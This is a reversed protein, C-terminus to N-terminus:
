YRVELSGRGRYALDTASDDDEIDLQLKLALKRTINWKGRLFYTYVSPSEEIVTGNESFVTQGGNVTYSIDSFTDYTYKAYAAGGSIEWIRRYRYRVDWSVGFFSDEDEVNWYQLGVSSSCSRVPQYIFTVDGNQYDRNNSDNAGSDAFRLSVGPSVYFPPAVQVTLRAYTYAYPQQEGLVNYLPSYARTNADFAGWYSGGLSFDSAGDESFCFVDLRGMRFEDNLLSLQGRTRLEESMQQQVDV